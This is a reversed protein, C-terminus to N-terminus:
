LMVVKEDKGPFVMAGRFGIPTNQPLRTWHKPKGNNTVGDDSSTGPLFGNQLPYWSGPEYQVEFEMFKTKWDKPKVVQFGLLSDTATKKLTWTTNKLLSSANYVKGRVRKDLEAYEEWNRHLVIVDFTEGLPIQLYRKITLKSRLTGLYADLTKKGLMDKSTLIKYKCLDQHPKRKRFEKPITTLSNQFVPNGYRDDKTRELIQRPNVEIGQYRDIVYYGANDRRKREYEVYKTCDFSKFIGMINCLM